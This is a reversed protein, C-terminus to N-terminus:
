RHHFIGRRLPVRYPWRKRLSSYIQYKQGFGQWTKATIRKSCFTLLRNKFSHLVPSVKLCIKIRQLKLIASIFIVVIKFTMVYSSKCIRLSNLVPHNKMQSSLSYSVAIVTPQPYISSYMQLLITPIINLDTLLPFLAFWLHEESLNIPNKLTRLPM